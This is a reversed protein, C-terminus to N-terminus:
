LTNQIVNLLQDKPSVFVYLLCVLNTERLSLQRSIYWAWHMHSAEGYARESNIIHRKDTSLVPSILFIVPLVTTM